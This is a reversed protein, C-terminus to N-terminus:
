EEKEHDRAGNRFYSIVPKIALLVVAIAFLWVFRRTFESLFAGLIMGLFICSWKLCGIDVVSWVKSRFLKM